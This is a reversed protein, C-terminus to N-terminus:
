WRRGQFDVTVEKDSMQQRRGITQFSKTPDIINGDVDKGGNGAGLERGM